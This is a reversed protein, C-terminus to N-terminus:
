FIYFLFWLTCIAVAVVFFIIIVVSTVITICIFYYYKVNNNYDLGGGFNSHVFTWAAHMVNLQGLMWALQFLWMSVKRISEHEQPRM